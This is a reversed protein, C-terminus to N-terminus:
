PVPWAQTQSLPSPIAQLSLGQADLEEGELVSRWPEPGQEAPLGRCLRLPWQCSGCSPGSSLQSPASLAQPNDPDEQSFPGVTVVGRAPPVAWLRQCRGRADRQLTGQACGWPMEWRGGGKHAVQGTPPEQSPPSGPAPPRLQPFSPRPTQTPDCSPQAHPQTGAPWGLEPCGLESASGEESAGTPNTPQLPQSILDEGVHGVLGRGCASRAQTM